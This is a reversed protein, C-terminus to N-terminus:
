VLEYSQFEIDCNKYAKDLLRKKTIDINDIVLRLEFGGDPLTSNVSRLINGGLNSVVGALQALVGPRHASKAGVIRITTWNLADSNIGTAELASELDELRVAGGGVAAYLDELNACAVRELLNDWRDPELAQVDELALLGKRILITKVLEKGKEAARRLAETALVSQLLKATSNNSFTLWEESPTIRKGSTIVEVVDGPRVTDSLRALVGNVQVASIKDLLYEQQISAVADLVTSGEPLFRASGTPTLIEIPRYNSIDKGHKLAYVVGWLNSGEMENTAIAIEVMGERPMWVASHLARYQNLPYAIYDLFHSHELYPGFYRNVESLLYYCLKEDNEDIVMRFSVMDSVAAFSNLSSHRSRALQRLKQWARWYGNVIVSVQGDIGAREMIRALQEMFPNLFDPRLRPDNDIKPKVFAYTEPEAYPFAMDELWRRWKYCNMIGALKGYARIAEVAKKRRKPEKMHHLTMLNHSKDALKVIFVGPDRFMAIKRLTEIERSRGDRPNSIKTVGDVIQAVEEGLAGPFKQRIIDLSEGKDEVADHLLGAITWAENEVLKDLFMGVWACHTEFYPEGSLRKQGAHLEKGWEYAEAIAPTRPIFEGPEFENALRPRIEEVKEIRVAM